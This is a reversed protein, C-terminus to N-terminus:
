ENNSDEEDDAYTDNTPPSALYIHSANERADFIECWRWNNPASEAKNNVIKKKEQM